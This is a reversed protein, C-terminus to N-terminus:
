PENEDFNLTSIINGKSPMPPCFMEDHSISLELVVSIFQTSTSYSVKVSDFCSVTERLVPISVMRPKAIPEIICM